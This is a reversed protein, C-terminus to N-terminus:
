PRFTLCSMTQAYWELAICTLLFAKEVNYNRAVLFRMLAADTCFSRSYDYNENKDLLNRLSQLAQKHETTTPPPTKIHIDFPFPPSSQEM